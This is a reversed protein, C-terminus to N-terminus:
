ICILPVLCVYSSLVSRNTGLRARVKTNEGGVFDRPQGQIFIQPVLYVHISLM